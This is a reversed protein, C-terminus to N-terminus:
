EGRPGLRAPADAEAPPGRLFSSQPAAPDTYMTDLATTVTAVLRIFLWASSDLVELFLCRPPYIHLCATASAKTCSLHEHVLCVSHLGVHVVPM